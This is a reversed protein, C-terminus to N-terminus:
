LEFMVWKHCFGSVLDDGDVFISAGNIYDSDDTVAGYSGPQTIAYNIPPNTFISQM